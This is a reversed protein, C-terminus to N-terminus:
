ATQKASRRSKKNITQLLGNLLEAYIQKQKRSFEQVVGLPHSELIMLADIKKEIQSRLQELVEPSKERSEIAAHLNSVISVIARDAEIMQASANQYVDVPKGVQRIMRQGIKEIDLLKGIAEKHRAIALSLNTSIESPRSQKKPVKQALLTAHMVTQELSELYANAIEKSMFRYRFLRWYIM